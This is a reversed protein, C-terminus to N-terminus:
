PPSMSPSTREMESPSISSAAMSQSCLRIEIGADLLARVLLRNPNVSGRGRASWAADTLVSPTAAGHIVVVIHRRDAGVGGADLINALRAVRQLSKLPQDDQGGQSLDLIVKYTRQPDPQEGSEPLPSFAGYGPVAQAHAASAATLAAAIALVAFPAAPRKM